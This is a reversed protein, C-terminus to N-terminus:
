LFPSSIHPKMSHHPGIHVPQAKVQTDSLADSSSPCIPAQCCHKRRDSQDTKIRPLNAKRKLRYDRYKNTINDLRQDTEEQSEVQKKRRHYQKM